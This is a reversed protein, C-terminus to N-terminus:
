ENNMVQKDMIESLKMGVYKNNDRVLNAMSFDCNIRNDVDRVIIGGIVSKPTDEFSLNYDPLCQTALVQVIKRDEPICFLILEKRNGFIGPVKKLCKELYANYIPTGIYDRAENLITQKFDELIISRQELLNNKSVNKGQAIIKNKDRFIVHYNREEINRKENKLREEAAEIAAAKKEKAADIIEKGTERQKKLLYQTFVSLKQEVSIM